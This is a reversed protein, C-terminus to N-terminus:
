LADGELEGIEVPQESGVGAELPLADLWDQCHVGPGGGGEVVFVGVAVNDLQQSVVKHLQCFDACKMSVEGSKAARGMPLNTSGSANSAARAAPTETSSTCRRAYAPSNGGDFGM